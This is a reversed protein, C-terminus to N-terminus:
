KEIDNIFNVINFKNKDIESSFAEFNADYLKDYEDSCIMFSDYEKINIIERINELDNDFDDDSKCLYIISNPNNVDNNFVFKFVGKTTNYEIFYNDNEKGCQLVDIFEDIIEQEGFLSVILVNKLIDKPM